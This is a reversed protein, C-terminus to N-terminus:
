LPRVIWLERGRSKPYRAAFEAWESIEEIEFGLKRLHDKLWPLSIPEGDQHAIADADSWQLDSKGDVEIVHIRPGPMLYKLNQIVNNFHYVLGLSLCIDTSELLKRHQLRLYQRVIRVRDGVGAMEAFARARIGFLPDPEMYTVAAGAQAARIAFYGDAGGIDVATQGDIDGLRGFILDGLYINFSPDEVPSNEMIGGVDFTSIGDALAINHRYPKGYSLLTGAMLRHRANGPDIRDEFISYAAISQWESLYAAFEPLSTTGNDTAVPQDLVARAEQLRGSTTLYMFLRHAAARSLPQTTKHAILVDAALSFLECEAYANALTSALRAASPDAEFAAQMAAVAREPRGSTLLLTGLRNALTTDTPALTRARELTKIAREAAAPDEQWDEGALSAIASLASKIGPTRVLMAQMVRTGTDSISHRGCFALFADYVAQATEGNAFRSRFNRLVEPSGLAELVALWNVFLDPRDPHAMAMQRLRPEAARLQQADFAM